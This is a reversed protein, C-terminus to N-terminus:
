SINRVYKDRIRAILGESESLYHLMPVVICRNSKEDWWACYEGICDREDGDDLPKSFRFPCIPTDM